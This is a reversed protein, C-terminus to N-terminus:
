QGEQMSFSFKDSWMRKFAKGGGKTRPLVIEGELDTANNIAYKRQKTM